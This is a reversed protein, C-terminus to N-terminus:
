VARQPYHKVFWDYEEAVYQELKANISKARQRFQKRSLHEAAEDLSGRLSDFSASSGLHYREM